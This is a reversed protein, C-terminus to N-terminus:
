LRIGLKWGKLLNITLGLEAFGERKDFLEFIM